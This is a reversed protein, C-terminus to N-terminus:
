DKHREGGGRRHVFVTPCICVYPCYTLTMLPFSHTLTSTVGEQDALAMRHIYFSPPTAGKYELLKINIKYSVQEFNM